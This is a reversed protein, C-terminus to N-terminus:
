IAVGSVGSELERIPTVPRSERRFFCIYERQAVYESDAYGLLGEIDTSRHGKIRAVETSSYNVIARGVEEGRSASSPRKQVVVLRVAENGAFTGDVDVVGAPLLGAKGILARHAGEDIYVTGHPKLGHLIWFSRDHIPDPSPLFRTHTPITTTPTMSRPEESLSLSLASNTPSDRAM